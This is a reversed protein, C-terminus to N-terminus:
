ILKADYFCKANWLMTQWRKGQEWKTDGSPFHAPKFFTSDFHFPSTPIIELNHKFPLKQITM